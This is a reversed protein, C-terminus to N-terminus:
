GLSAWGRARAWGGRVPVTGCGSERRESGRAAWHPQSTPASSRRTRASERVTGHTREDAQGGTREDTRTSGHTRDIPSTRGSGSTCSGRTATSEEGHRPRARDGGRSKELQGTGM